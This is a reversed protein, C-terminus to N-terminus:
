EAPTAAAAQPPVKGEEELERLWLNHHEEAWNRDVKGSGMASFAGEMGVTGIYIHAIILAMMVFAVIAHWLQALQMEAHPTLQEPLPAYGFWGPAGTANIAAFTKAFLPLEFPMLLSLGSVSVSVGLIMVGWFIIKQGANFKKAPPHSKTFIGGGKMLWVLDHRNPINRLAWLLFVVVLAAMFPWAIWHALWKSGVAITAFAEKGILDILGFRGFLTILGTVGLVIFSVALIWHAIREVLNFRPVLIGSWGHEIRIRGRILFFIALLGITGVLLYGGYTRLPGARFEYWAM